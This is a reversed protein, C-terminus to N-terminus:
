TMLLTKSLVLLLVLSPNTLTLACLFKIEKSKDANACVKGHNSLMSHHKM